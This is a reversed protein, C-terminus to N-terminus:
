PFLMRKVARGLGAIMTPVGARAQINVVIDISDRTPTLTASTPGMAGILHRYPRLGALLDNTEPAAELSRGLAAGDMYFQMGRLTPPPDGEARPPVQFDELRASLEEDFTYTIYDDAFRSVVQPLGPIDMTYRGSGAPSVREYAQALRSAVRAALRRSRIGLVLASQPPILSGDEAEASSEIGFALTGDYMQLVDRRFDIQSEARLTAEFDAIMPSNLIM